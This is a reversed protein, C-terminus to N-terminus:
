KFAYPSPTVKIQYKGDVYRVVNEWHHNILHQRVYNNDDVTLGSVEFEGGKETVKGDICARDMASTVFHEARVRRKDNSERALDKPTMM